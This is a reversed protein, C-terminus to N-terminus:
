KNAKTKKNTLTKMQCCKMTCISLFFLTSNNQEIIHLSIGIVRMGFVALMKSGRKGRCFFFSAKIPMGLLLLPLACM